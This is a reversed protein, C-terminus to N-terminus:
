ARTLIGCKEWGDDWWACRSGDCVSCSIIGLDSAAKWKLPCWQYNDPPEMFSKPWEPIDAM